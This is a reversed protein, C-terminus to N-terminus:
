GSCNDMQGFFLSRTEYLEDTRNEPGGIASWAAYQDDNWSVEGAENMAYWRLLDKDTEEAITADAVCGCADRELGMRTECLATLTARLDDSRACSIIWPNRGAVEADYIESITAVGKDFNKEGCLDVFTPMRCEGYHADNPSLAKAIAPHCNEESVLERAWHNLSGDTRSDSSVATGDASQTQKPEGFESQMLATIAFISLTTRLIM